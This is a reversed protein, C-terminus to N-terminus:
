RMKPRKRKGGQQMMGRQGGMQQHKLTGRNKFAKEFERMQERMNPDTVKLKKAQTFHLKAGNWNNKTIAINALQMLVLAKENDSPLGLSQAMTYYKEAEDYNKRHMNITGKILFYYSRNTKYLLKPALTMNLRREAGEFDMREMFQAATQVTGLLVYSVLLLLGLLLIPFAYWFGVM